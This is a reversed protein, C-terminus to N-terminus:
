ALLVALAISLYTKVSQWSGTYLVRVADFDVFFANEAM